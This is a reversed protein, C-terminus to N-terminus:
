TSTIILNRLEIINLKKLLKNFIEIINLYTSNWSKSEINSDLRLEVVTSLQVLLVMVDEKVTYLNGQNLNNVASRLFFPRSM